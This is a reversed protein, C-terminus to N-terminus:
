QQSRMMDLYGILNALTKRNPDVRGIGGAREFLASLFILMYRWGHQECLYMFVGLRNQKDPDLHVKSRRGLLCLVEMDFTQSTFMALFMRAMPMSVMFLMSIRNDEAEDIDRPQIEGRLRMESYKFFAVPARLKLTDFMMMLKFIKDGLTFVGQKQAIGRMFHDKFCELMIHHILEECCRYFYVMERCLGICTDKSSKEDMTKFLTEAMVKIENYKEEIEPSLPDQIDSFAIEKAASKLCFKKSGTFM